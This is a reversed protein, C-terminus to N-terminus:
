QLSDPVGARIALREEVAETLRQSSKWYRSRVERSMEAHDDDVTMHWILLSRGVNEGLAKVPQCSM